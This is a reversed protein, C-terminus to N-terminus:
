PQGGLLDPKRQAAAAARTQITAQEGPVGMLRAFKQWASRARADDPRLIMARSLYAGAKRLDGRKLQLQGLELHEDFNDPNAACRKELQSMREAQLRLTEFRKRAVAALKRDGTRDYCHALEYFIDPKDPVLRGAAEFQPIARQFQGMRRYVIGLHFRPFPTFPSIALAQKLDAEASQLGSPSPDQNLAILGRFSYARINKPDLRLVHDLVPRAEAYLRKEMLAEALMMQFEVDEPRLRALRRLYELRRREEGMQALLEASIALSAVDNPDRKLQEQAYEYARKEQGTCLTAASLRSYVGPTDPRLRALHEFARMADTWRATSLYLEGLLELAKTNDPDVKLVEHWEQEALRAQGQRVHEAGALLHQSVASHRMQWLAVAAWAIPALLLIALRFWLRSYFPM